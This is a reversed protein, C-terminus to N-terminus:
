YLGFREFLENRTSNYAAHNEDDAAIYDYSLCNAYNVIANEMEQRNMVENSKLGFKGFQFHAPLYGKVLSGEAENLLLLYQGGQRMPVYGDVIWATLITGKDKYLYSPQLVDVEEAGPEGKMVQLVKVKALSSEYLMTTDLCEAVVVLTANDLISVGAQEECVPPLESKNAVLYSCQAERLEEDTLQGYYDVYSQKLAFASAVGVAILVLCLVYQVITKKRM